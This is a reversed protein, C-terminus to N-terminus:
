WRLRNVTHLVFNYRILGLLTQVKNVFQVAMSAGCYYAATALKLWGSTGKEANHLQRGEQSEHNEGMFFAQYYEGRM